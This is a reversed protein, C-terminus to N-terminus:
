CVQEEKEQLLDPSLHQHPSDLANRNQSRSWDGQVLLDPCLLGSAPPPGERETEVGDPEKSNCLPVSELETGEERAKRSRRPWRCSESRCVSRSAVDRQSLYVELM